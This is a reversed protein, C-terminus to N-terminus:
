VYWDPCVSQVKGSEFDDDTVASAGFISKPVNDSSCATVTVCLLPVVLLLPLRTCIATVTLDLLRTTLPVEFDAPIENCFV